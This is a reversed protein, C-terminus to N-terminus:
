ARFGSINTLVNAGTTGCNINLATAATTRIPPVFNHYYPTTMSAPANWQAITTGGDQLLITTATASTNQFSLSECYNRIGAAGAAAVAVPTNTTLVGTFQIPDIPLRQAVVLARDSPTVEVTSDKVNAELGNSGVISSAIREAYVTVPQTLGFATTDTTEIFLHSLQDNKTKIVNPM